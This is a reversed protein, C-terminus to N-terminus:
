RSEREASLCRSRTASASRERPSRRKGISSPTAPPTSSASLRRTTSRGPARKGERGPSAFADLADDTAVKKAGRVALMDPHRALALAKDGISGVGIQKAGKGWSAIEALWWRVGDDGKRDVLVHLAGTVPNVTLDTATCYAPLVSM